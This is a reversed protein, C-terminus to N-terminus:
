SSRRKIQEDAWYGPWQLIREREIHAAHGRMAKKHAELELAYARVAEDKIDKAQVYDNRWGNLQSRQADTFEPKEPETPAPCVEPEFWTPVETPAHAIFYDRLTMGGEGTFQLSSLVQNRSADFVAPVPFAPGGDNIPEAM